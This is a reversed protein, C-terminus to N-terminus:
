TKGDQDEGNQKQGILASNLPEQLLHLLEELPERRFSRWSTEESKASARKVFFAHETVKLV